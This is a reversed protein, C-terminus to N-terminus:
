TSPPPNRATVTRTQTKSSVTEVQVNNDMRATRGRSDVDWLDKEEEEKERAEKIREVRIGKGRKAMVKGRDKGRDKDKDERIVERCLGLDRHIKIRIRPLRPVLYM